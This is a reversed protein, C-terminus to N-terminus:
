LALCAEWAREFAHHTLRGKRWEGFRGARVIEPHCDCNTNLPKIGKRADAVEHTYETSAHGFLLSSRYHEAKADGNYVVCPDGHGNVEASGDRIWIDAAPFTHEDPRSCIAPAPVTSIVLQYVAVFGFARRATINYHVVRTGGYRKWLRRYAEALSWAPQEGEPYEDWSCDADVAGYVKRAYGERSGVKDFEIYADPMDGTLEPIPVHLFQAGTIHSPTSTASFVIPNHGALRAAHAALLGSPGCGFIAVQSM